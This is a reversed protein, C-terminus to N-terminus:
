RTGYNILKQTYIEGSQICAPTPKPPLIGKIDNQCYNDVTQFCGGGIDYRVQWNQKYVLGVNEAFVEARYDMSVLNCEDSRFVTLTQPFDFNDLSLVRGLRQITYPANEYSNYLNGNWELGNSVPFALKIFLQNNESRAVNFKNKRVSWISDLAWTQTPNNRKYRELRYAVEGNADIFAAGIEERLQYTRITERPESLSYAIVEVEYDLYLGVELPYYQFGLIDTNEEIDAQCGLLMLLATALCPLLRKFISLHFGM